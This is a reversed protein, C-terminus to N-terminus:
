PAVACRTPRASTRSPTPRRGCVDGEARRGGLARAPASVRPMRRGALSSLHEEPVLALAAISTAVCKRENGSGVLLFVVADSAIGLAERAAARHERLAPSYVASDVANYIVHLKEQPLGFRAVIEDKVMQSNCIVASLSARTFMRREIWRVYRHYPSMATGFRALAGADRNKEDLWVAHVGDGARFIDCCLLREHSQVLDANGRAVARCAARAFGWDRWLRGLHFPDVVIPEMLQLDTEPWERTYLTVAVNRELLAALASEIFVGAATRRTASVSLALRM